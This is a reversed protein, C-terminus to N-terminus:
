APYRWLPNRHSAQVSGYPQSSCACAANDATSKEKIVRPKYIDVGATLTAFWIRGSADQAISVTEAGSYGTIDAEFNKWKEGDFRSVLGGSSNPISSAIWFDGAPFEYVTQVTNYPLGSNSIRYHTWESGDWVSIGGGLSSAWLKGSSNVMLDSIGGAGLDFAKSPFYQWKGSAADLRSIGNLTGTWVWDGGVRPEIAISLVFDEALGSNQSTYSAWKEGDYVALGANTGIWVKGAGGMAVANIQEGALGLDSAHFIQWAIGDFRALGDQTGIWIANNAQSAFSLVRDDPLSSNARNYIEWHDLIEGQPSPSWLALGRDTALIMQGQPGPGVKYVLNSPLESTAATMHSWGIHNVGVLVVNTISAILILSVFGVLGIWFSRTPHPFMTRFWDWYENQEQIWGLTARLTPAAALCVAPLVVLAYQPWKTPWLLLFLMGSIIWIVIWRRQRGERRLGALAFLFILGDFGYYFYVDPHWESAMSRSVWIFPQYWPYNVAAVHSGQSYQMHFLLSSLLRGGPDHWLAPDFAWFTFASILLYPLLSRLPFKKEWLYLYLIVILIPFYSYKGAATLGLAFASLWFWRDWLAKSRYLAFFAGLAAFLPLAELYAQSTYKVVLTQVALLGGALPDVLAVILVALSGFLVSVLRSLFLANEWAAQKGLALVTLGYLLKNLPPHENNEPYDILGQWDHAKIRQAYDFAAKLYVPEDADVPLQWAAWLRLCVALLVVGAITRRRNFVKLM